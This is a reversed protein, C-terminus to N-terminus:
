IKLLIHMMSLLRGLDPDLFNTCVSFHWKVCKSWMNSCLALFFILVSFYLLFPCLQTREQGTNYIKMEYQFSLAFFLRIFLFRFTCNQNPFFDCKLVRVKYVTLALQVPQSRYVTPNEACLAGAYKLVKMGGDNDMTLLIYHARMEPETMGNHETCSKISTGDIYAM